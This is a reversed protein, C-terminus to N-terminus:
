TFLTFARRSSGLASSSAAAPGVSISSSCSIRSARFLPAGPAGFGRAAEGDPLSEYHRWALSVNRETAVDHRLLGVRDIVGALSRAAYAGRSYGFLYIRDGERYQSALWGYARRIQVDIGRGEIVDRLHRWNVYQIGPEYRVALKPSPATEALLKWILGANTERGRDLSSMTGDLIVVLTMPGRRAGRATRRGLPPRGLWHLLRRVPRVKLVGGAM